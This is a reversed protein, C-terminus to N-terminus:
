IKKNQSDRGKPTHPKYRNNLHCKIFLFYQLINEISHNTNKFFITVVVRLKDDNLNKKRSFCHRNDNSKSNRIKLTLIKFSIKLSSFDFFCNENFCFFSFLLLLLLQKM